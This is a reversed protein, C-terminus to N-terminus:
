DILSFTGRKFTVQQSLDDTLTILLDFSGKKLNETNVTIHQIENDGFGSSRFRSSVVPTAQRYRQWFHKKEKNHPIIKYEVTYSSVGREDTTLNYIEFYIPMPVSRSYARLPHPIVELAGRTFLSPTETQAIRRAFLIDSLALGNDFSNCDFSTRFSSSKGSKLGRVSVAMRYYGTELLLPIQTPLLNSWTTVDPGTRLVVDKEKRSLENFQPDWVVIETHFTEEFVSGRGSEVLVPIEIQVDVRNSSKGGKFQDVGFYFPLNKKEFNFPYSSPTEDLVIEFNNATERVQDKQFVASVDRPLMEVRDPDMLADIADALERPRSLLYEQERGPTTSQPVASYVPAAYAELLDQPIKSTLSASTDYLLFDAFEPSINESAGLPDISYIYEGKLGFNQFSVLMDHRRFYWLEGPPSMGRNVTVEGWIKGRYDPPGYRVFVEGRKDWGPWKKSGYFQRALKVRITHEVEMENKRTTPTPDRQKWFLKIWEVRKEDDELSLFQRVQYPNLLYQLGAFTQQLPRSLKVVDTRTVKYQPPGAVVPSVGAIVVFLIGTTRLRNM